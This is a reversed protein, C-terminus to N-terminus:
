PVDQDALTTSSLLLNRHRALGLVKLHALVFDSLRGASDANLPSDKDCASRPEIDKILDFQRLLEQGASDVCNDLCVLAHKHLQLLSEREDDEYRRSMVLLRFTSIEIVLGRDWFLGRLYSDLAGLRLIALM